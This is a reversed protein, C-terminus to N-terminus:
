FVLGIERTAATPQLYGLRAATAHVLARTQQSVGDKGALARSVAFTSLGVEGAIQKLTVRSM